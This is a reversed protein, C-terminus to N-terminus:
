GPITPIPSSSFLASCSYATGSSPRVRETVQGFAFTFDCSFAGRARIEDGPFHRGQHFASTGTVTDALATNAIVLFSLMCAVLKMMSM